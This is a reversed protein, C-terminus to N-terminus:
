PGVFFLPGSKHVLRPGREWQALEWHGAHNKALASPLALTSENTRSPRCGSSLVPWPRFEARTRGYTPEPYPPVPVPMGYLDRGEYLVTPTPYGRRPNDPALSALTVVQYEPPWGAEALAADLRERMQETQVCGDRTLFVLPHGDHLPPKTVCAALAVFGGLVAVLCLRYM